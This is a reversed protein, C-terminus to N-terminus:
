LSRFLFKSRVTDILYLLRGNMHFGLLAAEQGYIWANEDNM